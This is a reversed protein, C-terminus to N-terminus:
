NLTKPAPIEPAAALQCGRATLDCLNAIEFLLGGLQEMEAKMKAKSWAEPTRESVEASYDELFKSLRTLQDAALNLAVTKHDIKM